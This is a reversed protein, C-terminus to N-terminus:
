TGLMTPHFHLNSTHKESLLYEAIQPINDMRTKWQSLNEKEKLCEPFMATLNVFVDYIVADPTTLDKGLFYNSDGLKTSLDNLHSPLSNEQFNNVHDITGHLGFAPIFLCENMNTRLDDAASLLMDIQYRQYDTEGGFGCRRGVYLVIAQSQTYCIGDWELMPVPSNIQGIKNQVDTLFEPIEM